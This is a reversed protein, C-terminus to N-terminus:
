SLLVGQEDAEEVERRMDDLSGDNIYRLLRVDNSERYDIVGLVRRRLVEFSFELTPDTLPKRPDEVWIVQFARRLAVCLESEDRIGVMSIGRREIFREILYGPKLARMARGIQNLWQSREHRRAYMQEVSLGYWPDDPSQKLIENSHVFELLMRSTSVGRAVKDDPFIADALADKGHNHHGVILMLPRTASRPHKGTNYSQFM